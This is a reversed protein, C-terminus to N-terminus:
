KKGFKIRKFILMEFILPVTAHYPKKAYDIRDLTPNEFGLSYM